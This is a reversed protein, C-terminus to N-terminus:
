GFFRRFFNRMAHAGRAESTVIMYLGGSDQCSMHLRETDADAVVLDGRHYFGCTGGVAGQIVLTIQVSEGKPEPLKAAPAARMCRAQSSRCALPLDFAEMGPAMQRWSPHFDERCSSHEILSELFALEKLLIQKRRQAHHKVIDRPAASEDRGLKALVCDLADHKMPVAECMQDMLVGGLTECDHIMRRAEPVLLMHAAVVLSQAEDLLGAAYSLILSEYNRKLIESKDNQMQMM